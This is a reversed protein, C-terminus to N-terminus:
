KAVSLSSPPALFSIKSATITEANRIDDKSTITVNMTLRLDDPTLSKEKYPAPPQTDKGAKIGAQYEKTAAAIEKSTLPIQAVIATNDAIFVTRTTPGQPDHPNASVQANKITVRSGDDLSVIAGFVSDIKAGGDPVRQFPEAGAPSNSGPNAPLLVPVSTKLTLAYGVAATAGILIVALSLWLVNNTNSKKRM